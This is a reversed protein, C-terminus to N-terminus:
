SCNAQKALRPGRSVVKKKSETQRSRLAECIKKLDYDYKASHEQRYLRIEEIIPDRIMRAELSKQPAYPPHHLDM